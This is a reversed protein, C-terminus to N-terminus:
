AVWHLSQHPRQQGTNNRRSSSRMFTWKTTLHVVTGQTLTKAASYPVNLFNKTAFPPRLELGRQPVSSDILNSKIILSPPLRLRLARRLLTSHIQPPKRCRSWGWLMRSQPQWGIVPLYGIPEHKIFQLYGASVPVPSSVAFLM